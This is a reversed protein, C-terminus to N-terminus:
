EKDGGHSERRKRRRKRGSSERRVNDAERDSGSIDERGAELGVVQWRSYPIGALLISKQPSVTRSLVDERFQRCAM